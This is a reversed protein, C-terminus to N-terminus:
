TVKIVHLASNRKLILHYFFNCKKNCFSDYKTTFNYSTVDKINVYSCMRCNFTNEYRKFIKCIINYMNRHMYAHLINLLYIIIHRSFINQCTNEIM